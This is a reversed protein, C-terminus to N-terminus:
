RQTLQKKKKNNNNIALRLMHIHKQGMDYVFYETVGPGSMTCDILSVTCYIVIIRDITTDRCRSDGVNM